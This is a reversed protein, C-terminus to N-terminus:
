KVKTMFPYSLLRWLLTNKRKNVSMNRYLYSCQQKTEKILHQTMDPTAKHRPIFKKVDINLEDQMCHFEM